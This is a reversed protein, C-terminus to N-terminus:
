KITANLRYRARRYGFVGVYVDADRTLRVSCADPKTGGNVSKCEFSDKRAKSGIQIRLDADASLKDIKASVKQGALAHIKYHKVYDKAVFGRVSLPKALTTFTRDKSERISGQADESIVRYHYTTGAKLNRLRQGHTYLFSTEKTSHGYDKTEGYKVEGTALDSVDWLVKASNKTIESVRIDSVILSTHISNYVRTVMRLWYDNVQKSVDAWPIKYGCHDLPREKSGSDTYFVVYDDSYKLAKTLRAEVHEPMCRGRTSYGGKVLPLAYDSVMFGINVKDNWSARQNVPIVWQYSDDVDRPDNFQKSAIDFKRWQYANRFDSNKTYRYFEGLDHLSAQGNLGQKFGLFLAGKYENTQYLTDTIINHDRTKPHAPAPGHTVLVTINPFEVEMAKMIAEFRSAVKDMHQKFTYRPNRYSNKDDLGKSARSGMIEWQAYNGPNEEVLAPDPFKFNSMNRRIPGYAEDDFLIGKFGIAEAAHAVNAFNRTVRNWITDDWFDGPFNVNIRLFNDKNKFHGELQGVGGDDRDNNHMVKAYTVIHANPDNPDKMMMVKDTFSNGFVVRGSFPLNKVAKPHKKLYNPMSYLWRSYGDLLVLHKEAYVSTSLISIVGLGLILRKIKKM